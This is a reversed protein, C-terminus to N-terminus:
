LGSARYTETFNHLLWMCVAARYTLCYDRKGFANAKLGQLGMLCLKFHYSIWHPMDGFATKRFFDMIDNEVKISILPM